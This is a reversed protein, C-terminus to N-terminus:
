VYTLPLLEIGNGDEVFPKIFNAPRIHSPPSFKNKIENYRKGAYPVDVTLVVAKYGAAQARQILKASMKRSSFCYLQLWYNPAPIGENRKVQEGGKIVNELSVNSFTSLAM